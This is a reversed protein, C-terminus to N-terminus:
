PTRSPGAEGLLLGYQRELATGYDSRRAEIRSRVAAAEVRLREFRSVLWPVDVRRIDAVFEGQGMDAMLDDMKQFYSLGIVPKGQLFSFIIGHFRSAVVMDTGAIVALLDELSSVPPCMLSGRFAAPLRAGILSEVDQIVPPDAYVQTPFLVVKQGAKILWVAFAALTEIYRRYLGPKDEPWYRSDHFPLPNIGVVGSFHRGNGFVGPLRLGHVLDPFVRNVGGFGLGAILRRSSEDRLSRYDALALAWRLFLKGLYTTVPGAGVSVFALKVGRGKAMLSWGLLTFPFGLPGGYYDMLQNSGVIILLDTGKLRPSSKMLFALSGVCAWISLATQKLDRLLPGLVPIKKVWQRFRGPPRPPAAKEPHAMEPRAPTKLRRIPFAPIQHRERTDAPNLTFACIEARPHRLRINQIVATMTAEDGLNGKGVHGFIAVKKVALSETM